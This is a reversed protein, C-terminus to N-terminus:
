MGKEQGKREGKGGVERGGGMKLDSLVSGTELRKLRGQEVGLLDILMAKFLYLFARCRLYVILLHIAHQFVGDSPCQFPQSSSSLSSLYSSSSSSSFSFFPPSHVLLLPFIRSTLLLFVAM